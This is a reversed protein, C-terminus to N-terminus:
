RTEDNNEKLLYNKRDFKYVPVLQRKHLTAKYRNIIKNKVDEDTSGTEIMEAIQSYKIGMKEEDTQGVLDM